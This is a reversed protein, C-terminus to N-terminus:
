HEDGAPPLVARSLLTPPHRAPPPPPHPTPRPPTQRPRPARARAACARPRRRVSYRIQNSVIPVGLAKLARYAERLQKGSFNCVGVGRCLGLDYAEALGEYLARRGGVYPLPAHLSYIDVSGVGLRAISASHVGAVTRDAAPASAPPRSHLAALRPALRVRRTHAHARPTCRAACRAAEVVAQRGIRLGGGALLNTWPVPMFKTSILPPTLSKEVLRSLLQESGEFLRVSQYGYVESTDFLTIGADTCIEYAEELDTSNFTIGWGRRPNGWALTGVGIKPLRVPPPKFSPPRTFTDPVPESMMSVSARRPQQLSPTARASLMASPVLLCAQMM